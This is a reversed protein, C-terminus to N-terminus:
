WRGYFLLEVSRRSGQAYQRCIAGSNDSSGDDVLIIEINAYSQMQVSGVCKELTEATNYIPIIISVGVSNNM